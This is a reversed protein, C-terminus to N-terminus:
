RAKGTVYRFEQTLGHYGWADGRVEHIVVYSAPHLKGLLSEMASFVKSVYRAKEDKTNTGQTVKVDLHFTTMCQAALAAGGVFWQAAPVFEVAVSTLERDKKLQEVTLDALVAAAKNALNSSHPGSLKANVYPM